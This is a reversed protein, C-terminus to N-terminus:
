INFISTVACEFGPIATFQAALLFVADFLLFGFIARMRRSAKQKAQEYGQQSGALAAKVSDAKILIYGLVVGALTMFTVIFGFLQGLGGSCFDGSSLEDSSGSGSSETSQASVPVTASFILGLVAMFILGTRLIDRGSLEDTSMPINNSDAM